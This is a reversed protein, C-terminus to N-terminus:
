SDNTVELQVESRNIVDGQSISAAGAFTMEVYSREGADVFALQTPRTDDGSYYNHLMGTHEATLWYRIKVHPMPLPDPSQNKINLKMQIKTTSAAVQQTEYYVVANARMLVDPPIGASGGSGGTAGDGGSMSTDGGEHEGP